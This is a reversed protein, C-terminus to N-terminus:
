GPIWSARQRHQRHQRLRWDEPPRASLTARRDRQPAGDRRQNYRSYMQSTAPPCCKALKAGISILHAPYANEASSKDALLSLMARRM